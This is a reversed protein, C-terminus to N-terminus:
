KDSLSGSTKGEIFGTNSLYNWYILFLTVILNTTSLLKFKM